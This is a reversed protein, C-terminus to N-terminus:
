NLLEDVIRKALNLPFGNRYALGLLKEKQKLKPLNQFRPLKKLLLKKLNDSDQNPSVSKLSTYIDEQSLGQHRLLQNLYTLSRKSNKQVLHKAYSTASLLKQEALNTLLHDIESSLDLNTYKYKNQILRSKITLKRRLSTENQPSIGISRLASERLLFRFSQQSLKEYDEGSLNQGVSLHLKTILALPLPLVQNSALILHYIQGFRPVIAKITQNQNIM